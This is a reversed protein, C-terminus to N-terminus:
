EALLIHVTTHIKISWYHAMQCVEVELNVKPFRATEEQVKGKTPESGRWFVLVSTGLLAVSCAAGRQCGDKRSLCHGGTSRRPELVM